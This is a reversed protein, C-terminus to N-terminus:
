VLYYIAMCVGLIVALWVLKISGAMKSTWLYIMITTLVTGSILLVALVVGYGILGEFLSDTIHFLPQILLSTSTISALVIPSARLNHANFRGWVWKLTLFAIALYGGLGILIIFLIMIANEPTIVNTLLQWAAIGIVLTLSILFGLLIASTRLGLIIKYREAEMAKQRDDEQMWPGLDEVKANKYHATLESHNDVGQAVTHQDVPDVYHKEAM